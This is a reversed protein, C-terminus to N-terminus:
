IWPQVIVKLGKRQEVTDFAQDIQSLPFRHTILAFVDIRGSAILELAQKHQMPTSGHSGTVSAEKYHM